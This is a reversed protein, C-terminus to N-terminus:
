RAGRFIYIHSERWRLRHVTEDSLRVSDKEFIVVWSVSIVAREYWAAKLVDM